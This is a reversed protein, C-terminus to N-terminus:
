VAPVSLSEMLLTMRTPPEELIGRTLFMMDVIKPLSGTSPGAGSFAIAMPATRALSAKIAALNAFGSPGDISVVSSESTVSTSVAFLHLLTASCLLM